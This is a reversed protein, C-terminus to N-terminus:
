GWIANAVRTVDGLERPDHVRVVAAGQQVASAVAAATAWGRDKPTTDRGKYTGDDDPKSLVTGLFSKRSAGVLQPYGRLPNWTGNALRREATIAAGERLLEMNGELTKSFGIGPDVMVFWRRVGSPGRVVAEVRKGLERTVGEVVSGYRWYDNNAGADGRSHMLVVPVGLERATRRMEAIHAHSAATLPYAPGAFAYVDNICNAGARVAADAVDARFTDVSILASQAEGALARIARIVPVVRATEDAPTVITAGPRTSYGGVDIIHAGAAVADSAYALAAPLTDHEAGDSFSDPTANLTAMVRTRRPAATQGAPVADLAPPFKWYTHTRPVHPVSAVAPAGDASLPYAPFPMVKVMAPSGPTTTKLVDALMEHIPKGTGPHVFDPIMDNLPRLVFEREAIRPHPVVLEREPSTSADSRNDFFDTDIFLIDLDVARPGNRISPVRGVAREIDKLLKLLTEPLLSTKIICACNLFSPQDTVYMPATEYLFSTNLIVSNAFPESAYEEPIANTHELLYLAAEINAFRDGLNSGLAVAALTEYDVGPTNRTELGTTEAPDLSSVRPPDLLAAGSRPMSFPIPADSGPYDHPTRIIEVEAADAFVLAKPKAARVTVVDDPRAGYELARSAVHSALSELSICESSEVWSHISRAPERFPFSYGPEPVKALTIDLHVLQKDERECQNLGVITNCSLQRISYRDPGLRAGDRSRTSAIGVGEAYPLARPKVLDVKM